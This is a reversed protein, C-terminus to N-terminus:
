HLLRGQPAAVDAAVDRSEVKQALANFDARVRAHAQALTQMQAEMQKQNRQLMTLAEEVKQGHQIQRTLAEGVTHALNQRLRKLWILAGAVFVAAAVAMVAFMIMVPPSFLSDM